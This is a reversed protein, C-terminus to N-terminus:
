LSYISIGFMCIFISLHTSFYILNKSTFGWKLTSTSMSNRFVLVCLLWLDNFICKWLYSFPAEIISPCYSSVPYNIKSFSPNCSILFYYFPGLLGFNALLQILLLQITILVLFTIFIRAIPHWTWKCLPFATMLMSFPASPQFSPEMTLLVHQKWM